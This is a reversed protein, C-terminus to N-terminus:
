DNNFKGSDILLETVDALRNGYESINEIAAMLSQYTRYQKATLEQAM